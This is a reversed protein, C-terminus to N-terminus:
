LELGDDLEAVMQEMQERLEEAVREDLAKRSAFWKVNDIKEALVMTRVGDRTYANKYKGKNRTKYDYKGKYKNEPKDLEIGCERAVKYTVQESIKPYGNARMKMAMLALPDGEEYLELFVKHRDTRRVISRVREYNLPEEDIEDANNDGIVIKRKELLYGTALCMKLNREKNAYAAEVKELVIDLGGERATYEECNELYFKASSYLAEEFSANCFCIALIAAASIHRKRYDKLKFKGGSVKLRHVTDDNRWVKYQVGNITESKYDYEKDQVHYKYGRHKECWKVFNRVVATRKWKSMVEKDTFLSYAEPKITPINRYEYRQIAENKSKLDIEFIYADDYWKFGKTYGASMLHKCTSLGHDNNKEWCNAVAKGFVKGIFDILQSSILCWYAPYEKSNSWLCFFAFHLKNRISYWVALLSPMLEKLEDTRAYVDDVLETTDIDIFVLHGGERFVYDTYEIQNYNLHVPYYGAHTEKYNRAKAEDTLIDDDPKEMLSQEQLVEYLLRSSITSKGDKPTSIRDLYAVKIHDRLM